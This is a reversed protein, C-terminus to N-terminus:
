GENIVIKKKEQVINAYLIIGQWIKMYRIKCMLDYTYLHM